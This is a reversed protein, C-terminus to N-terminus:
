WTSGKTVNQETHRDRIKSTMHVEVQFSVLAIAIIENDGFYPFINNGFLRKTSQVYLIGSCM